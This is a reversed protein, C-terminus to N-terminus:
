VFVGILLGVIFGVIGIVMYAVIVEAGNERPMDLTLTQKLAALYGKHFDNDYYSDTAMRHELQEVQDELQQKM